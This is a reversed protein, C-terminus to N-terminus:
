HAAAMDSDLIRRALRQADALQIDGPVNQGDTLYSLPLQGATLLPLLNGLGTSEDLKTLILRNASLAAFSECDRSLATSTSTGGLVLHVEDPQAESLYSRKRQCSPYPANLM